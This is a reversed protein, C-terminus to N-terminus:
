KLRRLRMETLLGGTLRGRTFRLEGMCLGKFIRAAAIVIQVTM